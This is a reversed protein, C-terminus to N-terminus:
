KESRKEITASANMGAVWVSRVSAGARGPPRLAHTYMRPIHTANVYGSRARFISIPQTTSVSNAYTM